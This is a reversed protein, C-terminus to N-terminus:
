APDKSGARKIRLVRPRPLRIGHWSYYVWELVDCLEAHMAYMERTWSRTYEDADDLPPAKLPPPLMKIGKRRCLAELTRGRRVYRPTTM